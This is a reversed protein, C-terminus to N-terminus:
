LNLKEALAKAVKARDVYKARITAIRKAEWGLIVSVHNDDLGAIMLKTAFTGRLDHIHRDFGKPRATSWSSQWGDPTWQTGRTTKLIPGEGKGALFARLPCYLPIVAEGGTKGTVLEIHTEKVDEWTLRLLDSIRLGTLSGLELVRHIHPPVDKFAQWHRDEWILDARNTKHLKPIEAAPNEGKWMGKLKGYKLVTHLMGVARDAARPTSAMEDRWLMIEGQLEPILRAPVRGFRRSIQTLRLRYERRTSPALAAFEPSGIYAFIIKEVADQPVHGLASKSKAILAPTIAPRYTDQVHILPGGRRAYVFWRDGGMGKKRVIHLGTSGSRM